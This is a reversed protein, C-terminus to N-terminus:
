ATRCRTAFGASASRRTAVGFPDAWVHRHAGGGAGPAADRTGRGAGRRPPRGLLRHPRANVRDCFEECAAEVDALAAYDGLLNASTPVVDDSAVRVTAEAGGKSQPDAVVFTQVSLGYHRAAAVVDPNRVAVFRSWALWACFLSTAWPPRPPRRGLRVAAVQGTRSGRSSCRRHGARYAPKADAVERRTTRESGGYGMAM